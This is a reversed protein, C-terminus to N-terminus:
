KLRNSVLNMLYYIETGIQLLRQEYTDGEWPTDDAEKPDEYYLAFRADAGSVVPCADDADTCTMLAVFDKQPNEAADFKKSYCILKSADITFSVEYKPNDGGPNLVGFGARHLANVARINFATVETGGSFTMIGDIGFYHSLTSAWIQALHSRRSNHTCIFVLKVIEDRRKKVVIYNALEDLLSIRSAPIQDIGNPLQRIYSSLTSNM